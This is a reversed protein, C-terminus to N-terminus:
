LSRSALIVAVESRVIELEAESIGFRMARARAIAIREHDDLKIACAFALAADTRAEFSKGAVAADIEAGTLGAQRAGLDVASLTRECGCDALLALRLQALLRRSFRGSLTM